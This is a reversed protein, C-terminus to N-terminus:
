GGDYLKGRVSLAAAFFEAITENKIFGDEKLVEEFYTHIIPFRGQKMAQFATEIEGRRQNLIEEDTYIKQEPAPEKIREEIKSLEFRKSIYPMLVEDILNLNMNHGWDKVESNSRFAHEIEDTNMNEYSDTIKLELQQLLIDLFDNSPLIWGTIIHITLLLKHISIRLEEASM